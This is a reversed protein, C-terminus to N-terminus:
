MRKVSPHNPDRRFQDKQSNAGRFASYGIIKVFIIALVILYDWNFYSISALYRAQISYTFPVWALDGFALMYGFGDTTVDMTTLIAQEFWLADAVYWFQFCCVLIMGNSISGYTELQHCAMALDIIIWGILGPRLECFVKLDFSFIRPNLERGIFFDYIMNGTNGGKALLKQKGNKTSFSSIYLYVSLLISILIASTIFSLFHVFIFDLQIFKFYQLACVVVISVIMSLFGLNTYYTFILHLQNTKNKNVM